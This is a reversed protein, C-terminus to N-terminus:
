RQEYFVCFLEGYIMTNKSIEDRFLSNIKNLAKNPNLAKANYGFLASFSIIGIWFYFLATVILGYNLIIITIFLMKITIFTIIKIMYLLILLIM